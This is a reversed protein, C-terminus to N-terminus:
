LVLSPNDIAVYIQRSPIIAIIILSVIAYQACTSPVYPSTQAADGMVNCDPHWHLGLSGM